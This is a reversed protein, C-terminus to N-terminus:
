NRSESLIFSDSNFRLWESLARPPRWCDRASATRMEALSSMTLAGSALALLM